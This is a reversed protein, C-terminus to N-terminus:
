RSNRSKTKRNPRAENQSRGKTLFWRMRAFTRNKSRKFQPVGIKDFLTHIFPKIELWEESEKCLKAYEKFNAELCQQVYELQNALTCITLRVRHSKAKM